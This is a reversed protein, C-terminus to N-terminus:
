TGARPSPPLLNTDLWFATVKVMMAELREFELPKILYGNAGARYCSVIDEPHSSTSLIIVPTIRDHSRFLELLECGQTGPLNLDLLILACDRAVDCEAGPGLAAIATKGDACRHLPNQAGAYQFARALSVFDQDSDEISLVPRHRPDTM